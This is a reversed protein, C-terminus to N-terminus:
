RGGAPQSQHERADAEGSSERPLMLTATTGVGPQAELQLEGNLREAFLRVLFLGLGMGMGPPKTTFFPECTRELVEPPMGSGQDQVVLRLQHPDALLILRVPAQPPSADLANKILAGVVQALARTPLRVSDPLSGQVMVRGYSGAPLREQLLTLFAQQQWPEPIEAVSEGTRAGLQDLIERCRRVEQRILQVDEILHVDQQQQLLHRELEGSVVAITGLPTGLEHAAGAALTTLAALRENRVVLARMEALQHERTRLEESLRGVFAAILGSALAFAVWMGQLHVSFAGEPAHHMHEGLGGQNFFFLLGFCLSSFLSLAWTWTAGLLVAALTVHVMYIVSFPNSPGGSWYLLGTLLLTDLGLVAVQLRRGDWTGREVLVKLLLNSLTLLGILVGFPLLPLSPDVLLRALLVTVSQGLVAWWRLRILWPLGVEPVVEEMRAAEGAARIVQGTKPPVPM